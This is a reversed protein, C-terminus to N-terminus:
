PGLMRYNGVVTADSPTPPEAVRDKIGQQFARFAAISDIPNANPNREVFHLFTGDALRLVLYRFGEPQRLELERFVAEVFRQNEDAKEPKAKYRVLTRKM